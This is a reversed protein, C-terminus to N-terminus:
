QHEEDRAPGGPLLGRCRRWRLLRLKMIPIGFLNQMSLNLGFWHKTHLKRLIRWNRRLFGLRLQRAHTIESIHQGWDLDDTITLGPYKASQVQELTQQHLIYNIQIHRSPHLRTLVPDGENFQAMIVMYYCSM